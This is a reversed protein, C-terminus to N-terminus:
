LEDVSRILRELVPIAKEVDETRIVDLTDKPSHIITLIPPLTPSRRTILDVVAAAEAADILAVGLTEIGAAIMNRHDSAPYQAVPTVNFKAQLGAATRQFAGLLPGNPNSATVFLTDGYGFIDLNVAYSPLPQDSSAAFYAQSGSLGVEELDFFVGTVGLNALPRSKFTALLDLLVACSSGNDVVGQGQAVRDYHAGVLITRSTKGAIGAVINAGTRMRADVFEQLRFDIGATKLRATIAERREVSGAAAAIEALPQQLRSTNQPRGLSVSVAVALLLAAVSARFRTLM